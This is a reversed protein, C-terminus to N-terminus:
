RRGRYLLGVVLLLRVPPISVGDTVGPAPAAAPSSVLSAIVAVGVVVVLVSVVALWRGRTGSPYVRAGSRAPRRVPRARLISTTSDTPDTM